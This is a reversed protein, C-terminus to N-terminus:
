YDIGCEGWLVPATREDDDDARAVDRRLDHVRYDDTEVLRDACDPPISVRRCSGSVLLGGPGFTFEVDYHRVRGQAGTLDPHVARVVDAVYEFTLEDGPAEVTGLGVRVVPVYVPDGDRHDVVALRRLTPPRDLHSDPEFETELREDLSAALSSRSRGSRRRRSRRVVVVLLVTAVAALVIPATVLLLELM